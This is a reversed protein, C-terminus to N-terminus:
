PQSQEVAKPQEVSQQKQQAVARERYEKVYNDFAEKVAVNILNKIEDKTLQSEETALKKCKCPKECSCDTVHGDGQVIQGTGGCKCVDTPSPPTIDPKKSLLEKEHKDLISNIRSIENKLDEKNVADYNVEQQQLDGFKILQPEYLSVCLFLLALIILIPLNKM